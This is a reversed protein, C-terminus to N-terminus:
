RLASTSWNKRNTGTASIFSVLNERVAKETRYVVHESQEAYKSYGFYGGAAVAGLIIIWILWKILKKM